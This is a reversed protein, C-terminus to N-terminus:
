IKFLKLANRFTIDAFDEVEVGKRDALNRAIFEVYSPENRKGRHPPPTLYPADTEIVMQELPVKEAVEGVKDAFVAIGSFSIYWGLDLFLKAEEYTGTFCHMVGHIEGWQQFAEDLAKRQDQYADRCHIILPLSNKAAFEAQAMFAEYQAKKM